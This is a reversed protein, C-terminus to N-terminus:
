ECRTGADFTRASGSILNENHRFFCAVFFFDKFCVDFGISRVPGLGKPLVVHPIGHRCSRAVRPNEVQVHLGQLSPAMKEHIRRKAHHHSHNSRHTSASIPRPLVTPAERDISVFFQAFFFQIVTTRSDRTTPYDYYYYCSRSLTIGLILCDGELVGVDEAPPGAKM